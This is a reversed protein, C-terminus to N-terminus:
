QLPTTLTITGSVTIIYPLPSTAYTIYESANTVTVSAGGSGGTANRGFGDQAFISSPLIIIMILLMWIKKTNFPVNTRMM